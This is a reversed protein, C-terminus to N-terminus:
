RLLCVRGAYSLYNTQYDPPIPGWCPRGLMQGAPECMFEEDEDERQLSFIAPLSVREQWPCRASLSQLAERGAALLPADASVASTWALPPIWQERPMKADVRMVICDLGWGWRQQQGRMQSDCSLPLSAAGIAAGRGLLRGLLSLDEGLAPEATAACPATLQSPCEYHLM